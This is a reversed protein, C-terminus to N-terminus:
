GYLSFSGFTYGKQLLHVILLKYIIKYFWIRNVKSVIKHVMEMSSLSLGCLSKRLICVKESSRSSFGPPMFGQEEIDGHSFANNVDM